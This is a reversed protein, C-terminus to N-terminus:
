PVRSAGFCVLLPRRLAGPAEPAEGHDDCYEGQHASLYPPLTTEIVGLQQAAAPIELSAAFQRDSQGQAQNFDLQQVPEGESDSHHLSDCSSITSDLDDGEQPSRFPYYDKTRLTRRNLKGIVNAREM